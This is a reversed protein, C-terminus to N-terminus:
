VRAAAAETRNVVDALLTRDRCGRAAARVVAGYDGVLTTLVRTFRSYVAPLALGLLAAGRVLSAAYGARDQQPYPHQRAAM